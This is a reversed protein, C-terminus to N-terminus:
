EIYGELTRVFTDAKTESTSSLVTRKYWVHRWGNPPVDGLVSGTAKSAAASFTVGAPPTKEDPTEPETGNLGSAGLGVEITTTPSETNSSLWLTTGYMTRSADLNCVRDCRYEVSGQASEEPQVKDFFSADSRVTSIAGGLGKSGTRFLQAMFPPTSAIARPVIAFQPGDEYNPKVSNSSFVTWADDGRPTDFTACYAVAPQMNAPYGETYEPRGTMANQPYGLAQGMEVSGCQAALVNAPASANYVERWSTFHPSTSTARYRLTYATAFQWCFDAGSLLRGNVHKSKYDLLPRFESYGLEIARGAAQTVFEEMFNSTGTGNDYAQGAVLGFFNNSRQGQVTYEDTLWKANESIFYAIESKKPHTDPILYHAHVATRVAWAKGRAQTEARLLCKAGERYTAHPNMNICNFTQYFLMGELYFNDATVLYPLFNFDPHHAIDAANPNGSIHAAWYPAPLKENFGTAPNRSDNGNQMLTAYPWKSISLPKDTDYERHIVAWSGMLDAQKLMTYKADKGQNVFYMAQWQPLIGIGPSAGPGPMGAKTIGNNGIASNNNLENLRATITAQNGTLSPDYNPVAHSAVLYAKDHRLHVPPEGGWWFTKKWRTYPFHILEDGRMPRYPQFTKTKALAFLTGETLTVDSTQGTAASVFRVGPSAMQPTCLVAGGTQTEILDCLQAFTQCQHGIVSIPYATGGVTVTAAYSTGDNKMGPSTLAPMLTGYDMSNIISNVGTGTAKIRLEQSTEGSDCTGAGTIRANIASFLQGYNQIASGAISIPKVVGNITVSATYLKGNNPIRTTQANFAGSIAGTIRARVFGTISRTDVVTGGVNITYSYIFPNNSVGIWPTGDSPVAKPKCWSNELVCHIRARPQGKFVLIEFRAHLGTHAIGSSNLLPARMIWESAIPGSRWTEYAGAALIKSADATYVTGTTPGTADTGYDTITTIASLNPYDSPTPPSGVPASPAIAISYVVSASAALTPFIASLSAHKVSGDNYTNKVDLQCPVKSGDPAILEVAAGAPLDGKTFVQGFTQPVNTQAVASTNELTIKTISM